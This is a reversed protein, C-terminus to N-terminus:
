GEGGLDAGVGGLEDLQAVHSARGQSEGAVSKLQQKVRNHYKLM